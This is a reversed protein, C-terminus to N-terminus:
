ARRSHLQLHRLRSAPHHGPEGRQRVLRLNQGIRDPRLCLHRRRLGGHRRQTDPSSSGDAFAELAASLLSADCLVLDQGAEAYVAENRSATVISDSLRARDAEHGLRGTSFPLSPQGFTYEPGGAHQQLKGSREDVQWALEDVGQPAASTLKAAPPRVSDGGVRDARRGPFISVPAVCRVCVLVNDRGGGKGGNVVRRESLQLSQMGTAAADVGWEHQAQALSASTVKPFAGFGGAPAGAGNPAGLMPSSAAPRVKVPSHHGPVDAREAGPLAKRRPAASPTLKARIRPAATPPSLLAPSTAPPAFPDAAPPLRNHATSSGLPSLFSGGAAGALAPSRPFCPGPSTPPTSSPKHKRVPM